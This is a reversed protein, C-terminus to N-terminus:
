GPLGCTDVQELLSVCFHLWDSPRPKEAPQIPRCIAPKCTRLRSIPLPIRPPGGPEDARGGAAASLAHSARTPAEQGERRRSGERGAKVLARLFERVAADCCIIAGPGGRSGPGRLPPLRGGGERLLGTRDREHVRQRQRYGVRYPHVAAGQAIREAGGDAAATRAGAGAM